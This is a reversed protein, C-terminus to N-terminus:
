KQPILNQPRSVKWGIRRRLAVSPAKGEKRLKEQYSQRKKRRKQVRELVLAPLGHDWSLRVPRRSVHSAIMRCIYYRSKIAPGRAIKMRARCEPCIPFNLMRQQAICASELLNHLFNRTRSHPRSFYRVKDGERILVWGADKDRASGLAEDFTSWVIATHGGADFRFGVERGERPSPAKLDLRKFDSRLETRSLQRFGRRLLAHKFKKFATANPLVQKPM